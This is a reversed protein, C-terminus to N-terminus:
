CVLDEAPHHSKRTHFDHADNANSRPRTKFSVPTEGRSHETEGERITKVSLRRVLVRACAPLRADHQMGTHIPYYGSLLAARAPTCLQQSYYNNLKIGDAALVDMFPTCEALQDFCGNSYGMDAWGQDDILSLIVHPYTSKASEATESPEWEAADLVVSRWEAAHADSYNTVVGRLTM